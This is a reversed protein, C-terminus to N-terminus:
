SECSEWRQLVVDGSSGPERVASKGNEYGRFYQQRTPSRKVWYKVGRHVAERRAVAPDHSCPPLESNSPASYLVALSHRPPTIFSLSIPWNLAEEPGDSWLAAARQQVPCLVVCGALPPTPNYLIPFYAL